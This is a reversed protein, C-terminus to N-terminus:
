LIGNFIYGPLRKPNSLILAEAGPLGIVEDIIVGIAELDLGNINIM